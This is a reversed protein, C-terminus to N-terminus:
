SFCLMNDEALVGVGVNSLIQVSTQDQYEPPVFSPKIKVESHRMCIHFLHTGSRLPIDHRDEPCRNRDIQKKTREEM